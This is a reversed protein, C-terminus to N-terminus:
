RSQAHSMARRNGKEHTKPYRWTLDGGLKHVIGKSVDPIPDPAGLGAEGRGGGGGVWGGVGNGHWRGAERKTYTM